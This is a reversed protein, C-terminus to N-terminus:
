DFVTSLAKVVASNLDTEQELDSSIHTVRLKKVQKLTSKVNKSLSVEFLTHGQTIAM